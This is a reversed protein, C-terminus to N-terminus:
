RKRSSKLRVVVDRYWDRSDADFDDIHNDIYVICQQYFDIARGIEGRAENLAGTREIWDIMDPYKRKLELCAQEADDLRGKKILNIVSNSLRDLEDLQSDYDDPIDTYIKVM